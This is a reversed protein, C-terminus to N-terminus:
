ASVTSLVGSTDVVLRWASGDSAYLVVGGTGDGAGAWLVTCYVTHGNGLVIQNSGGTAATAGIAVSGTHGLSVTAGRGIAVSDTAPAASQDGVAVASNGRAEAHYGGGFARYGARAISGVATASAGSVAGLINITNDLDGYLDGNDGVEIGHGIAVSKQGYVVATSGLAVSGDAGHAEALYGLAVAAFADAVAGAGVATPGTDGGATAPDDSRGVQVSEDTAGAHSGGTSPSTPTKPQLRRELIGIRRTLDAIADAWDPRGFTGSM